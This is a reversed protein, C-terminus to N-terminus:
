GIVYVAFINEKLIWDISEFALEIVANNEPCQPKVAVQKKALNIKVQPINLFYFITL